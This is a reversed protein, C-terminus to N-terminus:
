VAIAQRKWLALAVLPVASMAAGFFSLAPYSTASVIIGSFLAGAGGSVWTASDAIGQLGLRESLSLGSQIETSSAVYGFNWGLGLLFLAPLLIPLEAQAAGAAMIGSGILMAAGAGLVRRAGFRDVLWGTLPALAFMGVTHSTMVWGVDNLDYGNGDLHIPTMTMILVMVFQSTVLGAFGLRVTNRTFLDSLNTSERTGELAPADDLALTLPDPRLFLWLVLGAL